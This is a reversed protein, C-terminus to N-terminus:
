IRDNDVALATKLLAGVASVAFKEKVRHRAARGLTERLEPSAHLRLLADAIAGPQEQKVIIGGSQEGGELIEPLGQADSAIIPLRCAMAELPAVPMGETRSATVYVDAASLWARILSRDTVYSELWDINKVSARKIMTAFETRDQGSGIIVLKSPADTPLRLMFQRWAELLVDLGKRRIDIRGHNVVVFVDSPLGLSTRAEIADIAQWEEADIPNAIDIINLNLKAYSSKVRERERASAVILGNCLRLSLRRAAAELWSLTRDGGQFTGFAPLGMSRSLLVLADFRPNEYEQIILVDCRERVLVDKFQQIPTAWWRRLSYGSGGRGIRSRKGPVLWIPAGTGVHLRRIAFAVNESACIIVPEHGITRLADVYGFLWGGTMRDTFDDLDLGIPGLYEEIVDGWPFIAVIM